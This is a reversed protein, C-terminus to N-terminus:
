YAGNSCKEHYLLAGSKLAQSELVVQYCRDCHGIIKEVGEPFITNMLRTADVMRLANDKTVLDARMSELETKQVGLDKALQKIQDVLSENDEVLSQNEEEFRRLDDYHVSARTREISVQNTLEEREVSAGQLAELIQTRLADISVMNLSAVTVPSIIKNVMKVIDVYAAMMPILEDIVTIEYTNLPLQSLKSKTEFTGIVPTTTIASYLHGMVRNYLCFSM